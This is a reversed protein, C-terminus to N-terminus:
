SVYVSPSTDTMVIKLSNRWLIVARGYGLHFVVPCFCCNPQSTSGQNLRCLTRKIEHASDLQRWLRTQSVLLCSSDGRNNNRGEQRIELKWRSGRALVEWMAARTPATVATAPAAPAAYPTLAIPSSFTSLDVSSRFCAHTCESM